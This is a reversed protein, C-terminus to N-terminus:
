SAPKVLIDNDVSLVGETNKALTEALEKEAASSAVGSLRVKGSLTDVDIDLGAVESEALLKTKVAATTSLDAVKDKLGREKTMKKDMRDAKVSISNKVAKVGEVSKAVEEALEKEVETSVVGGIYATQDRVETEIDFVSLSSSLAYTTALKAELWTDSMYKSVSDAAAETKSTKDSAEENGVEAHASAASALFMTSTFLIPLTKAKTVKKM